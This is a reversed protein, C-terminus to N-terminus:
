NITNNRLILFPLGDSIWTKIQTEHEPLEMILNGVVIDIDGDNDLDGISSLMWRGKNESPLTRKHYKGNINEFYYLGAVKPYNQNPFFSNCFIDIDGDMDFDFANAQYVGNAPLFDTLEFKNHARNLYIRLGQYPKAKMPFDALDGNFYLIDPRNDKNFDTLIFGSSGFTPSFELLREETFSGDKNQYFVSLHEDGQAFLGLIDLLGDNNMDAVESCISGPKTSLVNKVFTNQGQNIYLSLQGLWKGFESIIIDDKGDGNIDEVQAHVPRRLETILPSLKHNNKIDDFYIAGSADDTPSFSGMYVMIKGSEFDDVDVLGEIPNKISSIIDYSSNLIYLTKSHIDGWWVQGKDVRIMSTSPPSSYISPYEASFVKTMPIEEQINKAHLEEPAEQVYYNEIAQWSSLPLDSFNMFVGRNKIERIYKNDFFDDDAIITDVGMMKKMRPLIYEKWTRKDLENPLPLKHCVGCYIQALKKGEDNASIYDESVVFAQFIIYLVLLFLFPLSSASKNM